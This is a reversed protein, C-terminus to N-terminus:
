TSYREATEVQECHEALSLRQLTFADVRKQLFKGRDKLSMLQMMLARREGELAKKEESLREVKKLSGSEMKSCSSRFSYAGLLESASFSGGSTEIGAVARDAAERARDAAEQAEEISLKIASIRRSYGLIEREVKRRKVADIQKIISSRKAARQARRLSEM